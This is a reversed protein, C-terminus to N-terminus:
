RMRFKGFRLGQWGHIRGSFPADRRCTSELSWRRRRDRGTHEDGFGASFPTPRKGVPKGGADM